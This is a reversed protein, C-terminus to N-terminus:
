CLRGCKFDISNGGRARVIGDFGVLSIIGNQGVNITNFFSQLGLVNLSALIVGGFLGDSTTLRRSLLITTKKSVRDIAPASIFVKDASSQVQALFYDQDEVYSDSPVSRLSSSLIKGDAGVITFQTVLDNDLASNNILHPLDLDKPNRQYLQRLLLLQNDASHFISSVHEQLVRTLNAGSQIGEEYARNYEEKELFFAGSLIIIIAIIGLYTAPQAFAYYWHRVSKAKTPRIMVFRIPSRM